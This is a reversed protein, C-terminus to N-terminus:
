LSRKGNSHSLRFNASDTEITYRVASAAVSRPVTNDLTLKRTTEQSVSCYGFDIGQSPICRILADLSGQVNSTTEVTKSSNM